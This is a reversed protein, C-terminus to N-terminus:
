CRHRCGSTGRRAPVCGRRASRGARRGCPRSGSFSRRLLRCRPRQTTVAPSRRRSVVTVMVEVEVGAEAPPKQWRNHPLRGAQWERPGLEGKHPLRGAQWERSAWNARTPCADRRGNALARPRGQPAPTGGAMRPPGPRRTPCADRRGNALARPRGQPAPTGGAM